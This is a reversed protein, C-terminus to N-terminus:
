CYKGIKVGEETQSVLAHKHGSMGRGITSHMEQNGHNCCRVITPSMIVPVWRM